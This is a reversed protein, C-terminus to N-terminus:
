ANIIPRRRATAYAQVKIGCIKKKRVAAPIIRLVVTALAPLVSRLGVERLILLTLLV